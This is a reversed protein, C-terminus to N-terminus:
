AFHSEIVKPLYHFELAHVKQAIDLPLDQPEITCHAQFIIKGEDYHENVLHISIGTQKERHTWVAEHVKMSYMGKGGYSPLLAPHVNIIRDPYKEILYTPILWIFGALVIGDIKLEDLKNLLQEGSGYYSSRDLVFTPIHASKSIAIVGADQHSSVILGIQIKPHRDFYHILNKTNSGKGSAFIALTKM